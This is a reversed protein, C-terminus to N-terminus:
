RSWLMRSIERRETKPLANAVSKPFGELKTMFLHILMDNPLGLNRYKMNFGIAFDKFNKGQPDKYKGMDPLTMAAFMTGLNANPDIRDCGGKLESQTPAPPQWSMRMPRPSSTEEPQFRTKLGTNSNVPALGECFYEGQAAAIPDFSAHYEVNDFVDANMQQIDGTKTANALDACPTVLSANQQALAKVANAMEALTARMASLQEETTPEDLLLRELEPSTNEIQESAMSVSMYDQNLLRCYRFIGSPDIIPSNGLNRATRYEANQEKLRSLFNGLKEAVNLGVSPMVMGYFSWRIELMAKVQIPSREPPDFEPTTEKCKEEVSQLFIAVCSQFATVSNRIQSLAEENFDFSLGPDLNLGYKSPIESFKKAHLKVHQPSKAVM